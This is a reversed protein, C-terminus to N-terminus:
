SKELIQNIDHHSWLWAAGRVGSSDGYKAKIIRTHVVDSFVYQPLLNPISEYLEDINSLGGGLVIVGPDLINIVNSLGLALLHQYQEFVRISLPDGNRMRQIVEPASVAEGSQLQFNNEFAPGAIWQEVCHHRGCFCDRPSELLRAPLPHQLANIPLTNHGWEGSIANVGQHLHKNIVIGGGVGTGIIVGFVTSEDSGAGDSAESLAFCDADNAIRVKRGSLQELDERLPQHNLCTSNCNMMLGTKLSVAGPTGIGIPLADPLAAKEAVETILTHLAQLTAQYDNQPTSCRQRHSIAGDSQMVILEIKTGGLDIGIRSQPHQTNQM